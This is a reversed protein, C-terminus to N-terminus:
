LSEFERNDLLEQAEYGAQTLLELWKQRRKDLHIQNSAIGARHLFRLNELLFEDSGILYFIGSQDQAYIQLKEYYQNRTAVKQSSFKEPVEREFVTPFLPTESRDVTLSLLQNKQLSNQFYDLILPRFAAIGVGSSLCYCTKGNDPFALHNGVKFLAVASGEGLTKLTAKFLSPQASIRTTIGIGNETPLTSISMHRVLERNPKEGQNFGELAFHIHSGAKWTFGDPCALHYTWVDVDEQIVKEIKTWYIEM